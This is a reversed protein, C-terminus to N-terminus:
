RGMIEDLEKQEGFWEEVKEFLRHPVPYEFFLDFIDGRYGEIADDEDDEDEDDNYVDMMDEIDIGENQLLDELEEFDMESFDEVDMNLAAAVDEIGSGLDKWLGFYHSAGFIHNVKTWRFTGMLFGIDSAESAQLANMSKEDHAEYLSDVLEAVENLAKKSWIQAVIDLMLILDEESSDKKEFEDIFRQIINRMYNCYQITKEFRWEKEDLENLLEKLEAIACEKGRM